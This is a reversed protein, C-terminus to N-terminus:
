SSISARSAARSVEARNVRPLVIGVAAEEPKEVSALSGLAAASAVACELLGRTFFAASIAGLLVAAVWAGAVGAELALVLLM